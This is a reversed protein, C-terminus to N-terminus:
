MVGLVKNDKIVHRNKRLQCKDNHKKIYTTKHPSTTLRVDLGWGPLCPSSKM